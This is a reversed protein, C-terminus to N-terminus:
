STSSVVRERREVLALLVDFARAGIWAPLGDILVQRQTADIHIADCRYTASSGTPVGDWPQWIQSAPTASSPGPPRILLL